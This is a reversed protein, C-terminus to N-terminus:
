SFRFRLPKAVPQYADIKARATPEPISMFDLQGRVTRGLPLFFLSRGLPNAIEVEILPRPQPNM